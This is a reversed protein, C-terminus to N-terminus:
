DDDEHEDDDHDDEKSDNGNSDSKNSSASVNSYVPYSQVQVYAVIQGALDVYVQEGTEFTVLFVDKGEYNTREVNYVRGGKLYVVASYIAGNDDIIKGPGGIVSNYLVDGDFASLYFKNGNALEVEFAEQGNYSVLESKGAITPDDLGVAKMALEVAKDSSIGTKKPEPTPVSALAKEAKEKQQNIQQLQTNAQNILANAEEITQSYQEERVQMTAKLKEVAASEKADSSAKVVGGVIGLIFTTIVISLIMASRKM